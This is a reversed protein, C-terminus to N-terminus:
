LQLLVYAMTQHLVHVNKLGFSPPQFATTVPDFSFCHLYDIVIYSTLNTSIEPILFFFSQKLIVYSCGTFHLSSTPIIVTKYSEVIRSNYQSQLLYM